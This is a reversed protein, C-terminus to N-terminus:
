QERTMNRFGKPTITEHFGNVKPSQWLYQRIRSSYSAGLESALKTTVFLYGGVVIYHVTPPHRRIRQKIKAAAIKELHKKCKRVSDLARVKFNRRLRRLYLTILMDYKGMAEWKKRMYRTGAIMRLGSMMM